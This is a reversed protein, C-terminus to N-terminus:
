QNNKVKKYYWLSYCISFLGVVWVIFILIDSTQPNESINPNESSPNNPNGGAGPNSPNGPNGGGPSTPYDKDVCFSADVKEYNLGNPGYVSSSGNVYTSGNKWCANYEENCDNGTCNCCSLTYCNGNVQEAKYFNKGEAKCKNEAALTAIASTEFWSTGGSCIAKCDDKSDSGVESFSGDCSVLGENTTNYDGGPCYYGALCQVCSGNKYYTGSACHTPNSGETCKYYWCGSNSQNNEVTYNGNKCNAKGKQEAEDKTYCGSSSSSKNTCGNNYDWQCDPNAVCTASTGISACSKSCSSQGTKGNTSEGKSSDCPFKGATIGTGETYEVGPCYYNVECIACSKSSANYYTGASCSLRKNSSSSVNECKDPTTLTCNSGGTGWVYGGGASSGCSYCGYSSSSSSSSSSSADDSVICVCNSDIKGTKNAVQCTHGVKCSSSSSSSECTLPYTCTYINSSLDQKTCNDDLKTASYLKCEDGVRTGTTCYCRDEDTAASTGKFPSNIGFYLMVLLLVICSICTILFGSKNIQKNENM